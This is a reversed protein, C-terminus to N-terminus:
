AGPEEQPILADRRNGLERCISNLQHELGAKEATDWARFIYYRWADFEACAWCVSAYTRLAIVLRLAGLDAIQNIREIGPRLLKNAKRLSLRSGYRVYARALSVEALLTVLPDLRDGRRDCITRIRDAIDEAQHVRFRPSASLAALRGRLLHAEWFEKATSSAQMRAGAHLLRDDAQEHHGLTTLTVAEAYHTNVLFHDFRDRHKRYDGPDLNEMITSALRAPYLAPYLTSQADHLLLCAEVIVLPQQHARKQRLLTAAVDRILGYSERVDETSNSYTATWHAARLIELADSPSCDRLLKQSKRLDRLRREAALLMHELLEDRQREPYPLADVIQKATSPGPTRTGQLQLLSQLYERTRGIRGAFEGHTSLTSLAARLTFIYTERHIRAEDAVSILDM